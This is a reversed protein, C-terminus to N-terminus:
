IEEVIEELGEKIARVKDKFEAEKDCYEKEMSDISDLINNIKASILKNKEILKLKSETNCLAQEGRIITDRVGQRSINMNQSIEALSLDHNYYLDLVDAQKSTLMEKYYDLLISIKLNKEM